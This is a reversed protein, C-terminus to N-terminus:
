SNARMDEQDNMYVHRLTERCEAGVDDGTLGLGRRTFVLMRVDGSSGMARSEVLHYAAAKAM